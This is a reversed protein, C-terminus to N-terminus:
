WIVPFTNNKNFNKFILWFYILFPKKSQNKLAIQQSKAALDFCKAANEQV